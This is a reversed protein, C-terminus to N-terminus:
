RRRYSGGVYNHCAGSPPPGPPLDPQECDGCPDESEVKIKCCKNGCIILDNEETCCLQYGCDHTFCKGPECDSVNGCM